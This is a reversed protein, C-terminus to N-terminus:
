PGGGKRSLPALLIELTRGKEEAGQEVKALDQTLQVVRDLLEKGKEIHIIQRGKFFVVARVKMGEELFERIRQVKTQFDHEGTQITFKVEKVKGAKPQKKERKQLQYRYKGFDVIKCVVPNADPAVEVLDLGRERALALARELPTVGLNKGDSDILLVERAQIQENVRFQRKIPM